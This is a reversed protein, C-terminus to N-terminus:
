ETLQFIGMKVGNKERYYLAKDWPYVSFLSDPADNTINSLLLYKANPDGYFTLANESGNLYLYKEEALFPFFSAVKDPRIDNKTMFLRNEEWLDFVPKYSLSADWGKAIHDPYRWFHGSVLLISLGLM